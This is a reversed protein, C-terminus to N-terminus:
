MSDQLHFIEHQKVEVYPDCIMQYKTSLSDITWVLVGSTTTRAGSTKKRVNQGNNGM